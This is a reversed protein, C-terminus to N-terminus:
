NKKTKKFEKKYSDAIGKKRKKKKINRKESRKLNDLFEENFVIKLKRKGIEVDNEKKAKKNEEEKKEEKRIEGLHHPELSKGNISIM